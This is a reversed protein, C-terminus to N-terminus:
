SQEFCVPAIAISRPPYKRGNLWAGVWTNRVLFHYALYLISLSVLNILLFKFGAPVTWQSVVIQSSVVILHHVLYIFYSSDAIYRWVPSERSAFTQFAGILGVIMCWMVSAFIFQYPIKSFLGFDADPFLWRHLDGYKYGVFSLLFGGTLALIWRKKGVLFELLGAQRHLVWGIMFCFGYILLTPLYFLTENSTKVGWGDMPQLILVTIVPIIWGLWPSEVCKKFASDVFNTVASYNHTGLTKKFLCRLGLVAAYIIILHHLFWLHLLNFHEKLNSLSTISGWVLKWTPFSQYAEPIGMKDLRGGVAAGWFWIYTFAPYLLFWGIFFPLVIRIVRNHIFETAGKKHFLLHAFFGAILFFLEMRFTHSFFQFWDFLWHANVDVVAWSYRGPCFSEAAHFVVGLLLAFGRLADLSYFRNGSSRVSQTPLSTIISSTTSM